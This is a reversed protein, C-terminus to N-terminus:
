VTLYKDRDKGNLDKSVDSNEVTAVSIDQLLLMDEKDNRKRAVRWCQLADTSVHALEDDDDDNIQWCFMVYHVLNFCVYQRCSMGPEYLM